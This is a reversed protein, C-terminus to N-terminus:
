WLFFCNCVYLLYWTEGSLILYTIDIAVPETPNWKIGLSNDARKAIWGSSWNRLLFIRLRFPWLLIEHIWYSDKKRQICLWLLSYWFIMLLLPHLSRLQIKIGRCLLCRPRVKNTWLNTPRNTKLVTKYFRGRKAPGHTPQDTPRWITKYFRSIPGFWLVEKIFHKEFLERIELILLNPQATGFKFNQWVWDTSYWFKSGWYWFYKM